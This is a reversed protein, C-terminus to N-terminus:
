VTGRGAMRRLRAVATPSFMLGCTERSYGNFGGARKAVYGAGDLVRNYPTIKHLGGGVRRWERRLHQCFTELDIRKPLGAILLHIHPVARGLKGTEKCWVWVANNFELRHAVFTSRLAAFLMNSMKRHSIQNHGFTMHGFVQWAFRFLHYAEACNRYGRQRRRWFHNESEGPYRIQENAALMDELEQASQAL